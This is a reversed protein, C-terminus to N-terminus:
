YLFPKISADIKSEDLKQTNNFYHFLDNDLKDVLVAIKEYMYQKKIKVTTGPSVKVSASKKKDKSEMEALLTKNVKYTFSSTGDPLTTASVPVDYSANMYNAEEISYPFPGKLQHGYKNKIIIGEEQTNNGAEVTKKASDEPVFGISSNYRYDEEALLYYKENMAITPDVKMNSDLFMGKRAGKMLTDSYNSYMFYVKCFKFKDRFAQVTNANIVYQEKEKDAALEKKGQAKLGEIVNHNTKLRVVLAGERLQKIQWAAIVDKRDKFKEFQKPDKYDNPNHVNKNTESNNGTQNQSFGAATMLVFLLTKIKTSIKMRKQNETLILSPSM